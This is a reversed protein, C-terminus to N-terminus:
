LVLIMRIDKESSLFYTKKQDKCDESHIYSISLFYLILTILQIYIRNFM